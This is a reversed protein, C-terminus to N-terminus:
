TAIHWHRESDQTYGWAKLKASAESILWTGFSEVFNLTVEDTQPNIALELARYMQKDQEPYHKSFSEYCLFLDSTNRQEEEMVLEMGLRLYRRMLWNLWLKKDEESENPYEALFQEFHFHIWKSQFAIEHDIKFAAIKPALDEGYICSSQTKIIYSYPNTRDLISSYVELGVELGTVFPYAERLKTESEIAWAELEGYTILESSGNIEKKLVAFSDFDSVGDIALGKAVSGRVYISHIYNQWKALYTNKVAEIVTLWKAQNAQLDSRNELFGQENAHSYNGIRKIKM